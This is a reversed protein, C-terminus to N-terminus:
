VINITKADHKKYASDHINVIIFVIHRHHKDCTLQQRKVLNQTTACNETKRINVIIYVNSIAHEATHKLCIYVDM